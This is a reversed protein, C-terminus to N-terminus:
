RMFLSIHVENQVASEAMRGPLIYLSAVKKTPGKPVLVEQLIEKRVLVRIFRQCMKVNFGSNQGSGFEPLQELKHKKVEKGTGLGLFVRALLSAPPQPVTHRVSSACRVMAAAERGLVIERAVTQSRCNDCTNNCNYSSTDESFAELLLKRRCLETEGYHVMGSLRKLAEDRYQGDEIEGVRKVHLSKDEPKFLLVAKALRGDRGARGSEQLYDPISSPCGLHVVFRVDPKDIGAGAAKTAVLVDKEGRQWDFLSQRGEAENQGTGVGHYKVTKIGHEQLHYHIDKVDDVTQCYVIGSQGMHDRVVGCVQDHCKERTKAKMVVSYEINRRDVSTYFTRCDGMTLNEITFQKTTPTATATCAVIQTKLDSLKSLQLYTPRFEHGMQDMCHAEDVVVMELLGRAKLDVVCDWIVPKNLLSEPTIILLKTKPKDSRLDHITTILSAEATLHSVFIAPISKEKYRRLFDTGLAILPVIVVSVGKRLLAPLTFCLTKGGGTPMVLFTNEGNHVAEVIARQGPRFSPLKFVTKLCEELPDDVNTYSIPQCTAHIIDADQPPPQESLMKVYIPKCFIAPYRMNNHMKLIYWLHYHVEKDKGHVSVTYPPQGSSFSHLFDGAHLVIGAKKAAGEPTLATVQVTLAPSKVSFEEGAPEKAQFQCVVILVIVWRGRKVKGGYLCAFSADFMIVM